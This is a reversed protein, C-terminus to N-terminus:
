NPGAPGAGASPRRSAWHALHWALDPMPLAGASLVAAHFDRLDFAQGLREKMQHRLRMLETDALKYALAQAPIDCAYRLTETLVESESMASVERLYDRARELTWGLVNMGTDVVLRCSLFADMVLRGYREEDTEYLGLEGALDAAYEAWGENFANVFAHRGVPHLSPSESQSAMHLHHGPVLEHFTLAAINLLPQQRLNAANFLFRGVPQEQKPADYYGFSMSGQLAEPLPAVTHGARPRQHFATDFVREMRDIYRQFVEAVAETTQASYRPDTGARSLYGKPDDALGQRARIARMNGLTEQLHALGRAHVEQPRLDSTTHWRVLEAYIETGGEYQSLGVRTPALAEYEASLLNAWRGFAPNIQQEIRRQLEVEFARSAPDAALRSADVRLLEPFRRGFGAVLGRASPLQARPIRMGRQAQGATREAMQEICLACDGVFALYRDLDSGKEFRRAQASQLLMNLLLGGSYAGSSFLAFFGVGTPDFVTWYWTAERAVGTAWHRAQRLLLAVTHPLVAEDIGDIRALLAKASDSRRQAGQPSLDPLRSILGDAQVQCYASGRQEDWVDSLLRLATGTPNGPTPEHRPDLWQTAM